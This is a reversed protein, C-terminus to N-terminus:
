SVGDSPLRCGDGFCSPLSLVAASPAELLAFAVDGVDVAIAGDEASPGDVVPMLVSSTGLLPFFGVPVSVLGSEIQTFPTFSSAIAVDSFSSDEFVSSTSSMSTSLM